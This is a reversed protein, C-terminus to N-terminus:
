KPLGQVVLAELDALTDVCRGLMAPGGLVQAIASPQPLM